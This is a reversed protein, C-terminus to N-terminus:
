KYSLKMLEKGIMSMNKSVFSDLDKESASPNFHAALERLHEKLFYLDSSVNDAINEEDSM